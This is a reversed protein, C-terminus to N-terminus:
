PANKVNHNSHKQKDIINQYLEYVKKANQERTYLENVVRFAQKLYSQYYDVSHSAVEVLLAGLEETTEYRLAIEQGTMELANDLQEKTGSTNHAICLCGQQMAEPMCFGFGENLSPIILARANRMLYAINDCEGLLQVNESLDNEMIFRVQQQYYFNDGNSGAVKLPLPQTAQRAYQKYAMLLQNLGKAPQIRGAYLFFDKTGPSPLERIAEFVGDYIVHAHKSEQILHHKRIGKTICVSYNNAFELQRHFASKNPFYHIGFDLDGYERIHYVHPIGVKQAADFGIRVVGTNSHVIDIKNDKLFSILAKTARHNVIIRAILKPIFLVREKLTRLPPYASTRYTVVLTPIGREKLVQTVGENDPIIVYPSIGYSLLGNLMNLFAKTAGGTLVSANLVYAIKM